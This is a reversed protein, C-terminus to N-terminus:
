GQLSQKEVFSEGGVSRLWFANSGAPFTSGICLGGGSVGGTGTDSAGLDRVLPIGVGCPM